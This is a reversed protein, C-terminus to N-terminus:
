VTVESLKVQIKHSDDSGNLAAQLAEIGAQAQQISVGDGSNLQVPNKFQFAEGWQVNFTYSKEIKKGAEPTVSFSSYAVDSAGDKMTSGVSLLKGSTVATPLTVEFKLNKAGGAYYEAAVFTVKVTFELDENASGSGVTFGLTGATKGGCDLVVGDMATASINLRGDTVAGVTVEVNVDGSLDTTSIVWSAFGVSGLAVSALGLSLLGVAKGKSIKNM